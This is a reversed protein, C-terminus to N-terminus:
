AAIDIRIDGVNTIIECRGGSVSQPVRVDGINNDIIFMKESLLTGTVTGTTTKVFIEGADSNKFVVDGTSREVSLRDAAIVNTLAIKGTNGDSLLTGCNVGTVQVDGTTVHIRMEGACTISRATVKGTSVSLALSDTTMNEACINGTTAKLAAEQSVSAAVTVDGTTATIQMSDFTFDQPVTIDGTTVELVLAAYSKQPLYVTVSPTGLSIGIHEFWKTTSVERITLTDNEVTVTHKASEKERCVVTCFDNASPVFSVDATAVKVSINQFATEVTHTNTQFTTTSLKSFDWQLAMMVGGFLLCGVAVLATAAILWAKTGKRM